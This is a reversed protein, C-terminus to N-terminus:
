LKTEQGEQQKYSLKGKWFPFVSVSIHKMNHLTKIMTSLWSSFFVNLTLTVELSFIKLISQIMLIWRRTWWVVSNRVILVEWVRSSPIDPGERIELGYRGSCWIYEIFVQQILSCGRVRLFAPTRRWGWCVTISVYHKSHPLCATHVFSQSQSVDLDCFSNSGDRLELAAIKIEIIKGKMLSVGSLHCECICGGERTYKPTRTMGMTSTCDDWDVERGSLFIYWFVFSYPHWECPFLRSDM